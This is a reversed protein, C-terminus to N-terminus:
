LRTDLPSAQPSSLDADGGDEVCECVGVFCSLVSFSVVSGFSLDAEIENNFEPTQGYTWEWSKLEEIGKLIKENIAGEENILQPNLFTPASTSSSGSSSSNLYVSAFEEVVARVFTENTILPFSSPLYNNITTVPSRFSPVSKGQINPQARTLQYDQCVDSM